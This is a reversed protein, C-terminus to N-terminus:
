LCREGHLARMSPGATGRAQAPGQTTAHAVIRFQSAAKTSITTPKNQRSVTAQKARHTQPESSEQRIGSSGGFQLLTVESSATTDM